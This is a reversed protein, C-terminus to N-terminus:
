PLLTHAISLIEDETLLGYITFRIDGARWKLEAIKDKVVLKGEINGIQVIKETEESPEQYGMTQEEILIFWRDKSGYELRVRHTHSRQPNTYVMVQNLTYDDYESFTPTRINFSALIQADELTAPQPTIQFLSKQELVVREVNLDDIGNGAKEQNTLSREILYLDIKEMIESLVPTSQTLISISFIVMTIVAVWGLRKLIVPIKWLSRSTRELKIWSQNWDPIPIHEENMKKKVAECILEDLRDKHNEM